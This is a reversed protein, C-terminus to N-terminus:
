KKGKKKQEQIAQQEKLAKELRQQFGKKKKPKQKYADLERNIKENDIIYNKTVITQAINILNSFLLYCTLGAAFSNFFGMFMIPMIYQMYKMAPNTGMDMHRTNYYTYILTTVAWLLTFLSIHAGFGFPIEFPLKWFIDYSSLDNAWLFGAQRFEISAPFFRYLAFWIPMQLVMPMCGGLPNVGFERYMKMTEMQQQQQDDKYKEKVGEMRPKLASMKSQSYLMKYTLPYLVLKVVFTLLLIVIGASGIFGSLFNFVPRIIWRNISGFISWGFPIVDQLGHGMNYLRDFENPGVYMHMAFTESASRGYPIEMESVLLKLDAAEEPLMKTEFTGGDFGNEAVISTNFFQNANSVWKLRQGELEETDDGTCSCYDPDDEMPKFYVTSYRREYDENHELKDLYNVWSLKIKNVGQSVVTNLQEMKIDYDINYTGDTIRYSQEFYGGTSTPARLVISKGDNQIVDFFLEGTSVGGSPLNAVPLLYEFKNKEDELLYLPEEETSGDELYRLKKHNKILVSTIRGGKTSLNVKMLDNELIVDEETGDAAASFPGFAAEQRLLALSDDVTEVLDVAEVTDKAIAKLSDQRAQVQAISDQRIQQEQIEAETPAMYQQWVMLLIFILTLGIITNRDM